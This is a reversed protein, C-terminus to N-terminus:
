FLAEGEIAVELEPFLLREGRTTRRWYSNRCEILGVARLGNITLRDAEWSQGEWPLRRGPCDYPQFCRLVAIDSRTLKPVLAVDTQESM